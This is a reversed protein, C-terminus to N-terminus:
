VFGPLSLYFCRSFSYKRLGPNISTHYLHAQKASLLLHSITAVWVSCEVKDKFTIHIDGRSTRICVCCYGNVENTFLVGEATREKSEDVVETITDSLM